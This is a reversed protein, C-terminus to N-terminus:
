EGKMIIVIVIVIIIPITTLSNSYIFFCIDFWVM